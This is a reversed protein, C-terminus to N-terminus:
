VIKISGVETRSTLVDKFEKTANMLRNKLNDVVTTSHSTTDVTINGSENQSNCLLQLDVVASNLATIDQKIVTTLEQIEVIPDDYTGTKKAVAYLSFDFINPFPVDVSFIFNQIFRCHIYLSKLFIFYFVANDYSWLKCM